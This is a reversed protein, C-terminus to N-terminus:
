APGEVETANFTDMLLTIVQDESSVKDDVDEHAHAADSEATVVALKRGTVEFLADRILGLNRPEDVQTRHFGAAAPFSLTVSSEDLATPVAAELLTATPISRERLAPIVSRTWADRLQDLTVEPATPPAAPPPQPPSGDAAAPEAPPGTATGIGASAPVPEPKPSTEAAPRSPGATPQLGGHVRSELVEVRHALSERSLDAQPRTVKVLALELPLRPDGGQRMDEVAVALLDILRLVAPEALQNAQERLRERADDTLPLSDPVHGVHQVLLVHRLHEILDTVLRGLDQGQDSLEEIALLAGATDRDVVTDCLRFLAGEEVTGVLQMVDQVSIQKGTAAALQDLMSIGDRFSGRAGRAIMALATDPADIGEGDCVRRLATILERLRPRQFVFTQCRSRVTLLVKSVDTTCFVFVLHPPPEEILKLLANWAADTLQHAEDVIYVKYTGEAPQLLARERIERVDDIGRQSAADMEIVDLAVGDAISRAIRTAPDFEASPGGEANLAKALIRAMSTKGTGRPGAFLYAQRVQGTGIANRLTRVIAEQGVVDAFTLPRYTRYLATM